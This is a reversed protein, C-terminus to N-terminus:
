ESREDWSTHRENEKICRKQEAKEGKQQEKKSSRKAAANAGKPGFAIQGGRRGRQLQILVRGM